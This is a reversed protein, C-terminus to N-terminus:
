EKLANDALVLQRADDQGMLLVIHRLGHHLAQQTARAWQAQDARGRARSDTLQQPKPWENADPAVRKAIDKPFALLRPPFIGTILRIFIAAVYHPVKKRGRRRHMAM